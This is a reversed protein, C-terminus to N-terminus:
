SRLLKQPTRNPRGLNTLPVTQRSFPSLLMHIPLILKL